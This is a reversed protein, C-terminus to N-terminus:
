SAMKAAHTKRPASSGVLKACSLGALEDIRQVVLNAPERSMRKAGLWANAHSADGNDSSLFLFNDASLEPVQWSVTRNQHIQAAGADFQTVISRWGAAGSASLNWLQSYPAAVLAAAGPELGTPPAIVKAPVSRAGPHMNAASQSAELTATSPTAAQSRQLPALATAGVAAVACRQLTQRRSVATPDPPM